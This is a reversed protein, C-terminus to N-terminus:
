HTDAVQEAAAGSRGQQKGHLRTLRVDNVDAVAADLAAARCNRWDARRALDRGEVRGCVRRAATDLRAYLASVGQETAMDRDAYSVAVSRQERFMDSDAQMDTAHATSTAIAGALGLGAIRLTISLYRSNM